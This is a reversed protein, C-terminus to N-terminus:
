QKRDQYAALLDSVAIGAIRMGVLNCDRLEVQSLNADCIVSDSLDVDRIELRHLKANTFTSNSLDVDHFSSGSLNSNVIELPEVLDSRKV